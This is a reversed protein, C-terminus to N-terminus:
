ESQGDTDRVKERIVESIKTTQLNKCNMKLVGNRYKFLKEKVQLGTDIIGLRLKFHKRDSYINM